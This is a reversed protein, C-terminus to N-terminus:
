LTKELKEINEEFINLLELKVKDFNKKKYEELIDRYRIDSKYKEIEELVLTVDEGLEILNTIIYNRDSLHEKSDKSLIEWYLKAAEDNKGKDRKIRALNMLNIIYQEKILLFDLEKDMIKKEIKVLLDLYGELNDNLISENKIKEYKKNLEVIDEETLMDIKCNLIKELTNYYFDTNEM